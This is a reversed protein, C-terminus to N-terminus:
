KKKPLPPPTAGAPPDKVVVVISVNAAGYKAKTKAIFELLEENKPVSDGYLDFNAINEDGNSTTALIVCGESHKPFQGTHILVDAFNPVNLLEVATHKYPQKLAGNRASGSKVKANYTGAPIPYNKVG